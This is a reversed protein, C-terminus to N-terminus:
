LTWGVPRLTFPRLHRGFDPPLAQEADARYSKSTAPEGASESELGAKKGMRAARWRIVGAIERRLAATFAPAAAEADETYGRLWVFRETAMGADLQTAGDHGDPRTYEALTDAEAGAALSALDEDDRLV